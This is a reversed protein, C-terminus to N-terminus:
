CGANRRSLCCWCPSVGRTPQLLDQNTRDRRPSGPTTVAIKASAVVLPLCGWVMAPTARRLSFAFLPTLDFCVWTWLGRESWRGGKDLIPSRRPPRHLSEFQESQWGLLANCCKHQLILRLSQSFLLYACGGDCQTRVNGVRLLICLDNFYM